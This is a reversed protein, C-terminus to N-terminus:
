QAGQLAEIVENLTHDRGITGGGQEHWKGGTVSPPFICFADSSSYRILAIHGGADLYRRLDPDRHADPSKPDCWIQLVPVQIPEGGGGPTMTVFDPMLDIVYRARDPRSLGSAEPDVLWKCSWLACSSPFGEKQYVACGKGTRQHQCRENAAKGLERVPMLKCCLTCGGCQRM